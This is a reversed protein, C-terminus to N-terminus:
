TTRCNTTLSLVPAVSKLGKTVDTVDRCGVSAGECRTTSGRWSGGKEFHNSVYDRM